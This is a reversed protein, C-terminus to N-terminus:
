NKSTSKSKIEKAAKKGSLIAHDMNYYEWEGFRGAVLIGNNRLFSKIRNLKRQRNKEFIIYGYKIDLIDAFIIQDKKELFRTKILDKIVREILGKKSVPKFKSHSIEATISSKGIPAVNPSANSQIFLRQFVVDEEPYYIWNKDTIKTHDIGLNVCYVSSYMLEQATKAVEAPVKKCLNILEPLPLTSIMSEYKVEKDSELLVIKKKTDINVVKSCLLLDTHKLHPLFSDVLAQCGGYLPYAFRSNPGFNVQKSELAGDLVEEIKPTMVRNEIWEYTMKDLPTAWVKKNYPLMFHKAIGGGFTKVIWEKFHKPAKGSKGNTSAEIVGIVCEKVVEKPLGFTNAQFPYRTFTDKSFVWANRNHFLINKDLLKRVLSDAYRNKTFFIHGAFDFIFGDKEISRALGGVRDEKEILVHKSKLHYAASLGAPGAGLIVTKM